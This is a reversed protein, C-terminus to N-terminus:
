ENDLYNWLKMIWKLDIFQGCIWYISTVSVSISGYGLDMDWIWIGSELYMDLMDIRAPNKQRTKLEAFKLRQVSFLICCVLM